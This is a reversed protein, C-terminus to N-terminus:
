YMEIKNLKYYFKPTFICKYGKEKILITIALKQEFFDKYTLLICPLYYFPINSILM